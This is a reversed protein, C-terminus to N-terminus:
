SMFVHSSVPGRQLYVFIGVYVCALPLICWDKEDRSSAQKNM